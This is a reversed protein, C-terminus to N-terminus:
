TSVPFLLDRRHFGSDEDKGETEGSGTHCLLHRFCVAGNRRIDFAANARGSHPMDLSSIPSAGGTPGGSQLNGSRGHMAGDAKRGAIDTNRFSRPASIRDVSHQDQVSRCRSEDALILEGVVPYAICHCEIPYSLRGAGPCQNDHHSTLGRREHPHPRSARTPQRLGICRQHAPHGSTSCTSSWYCTPKQM